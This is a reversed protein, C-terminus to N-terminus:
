IASVSEVIYPVYNEVGSDSNGQKTIWDTKDDGDLNAPIFFNPKQTSAVSYTNGSAPMPITHLAFVRSMNPLLLAACFVALIFIIKFRPM